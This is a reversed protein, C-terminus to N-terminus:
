TVTGEMTVNKAGRKRLARLRDRLLENARYVLGPEIGLEQAIDAAKVLGHQRRCRLVDRAVPQDGLGAELQDLEREADTQRTEQEARDLTKDEPSAAAYGIEENHFGAHARADKAPKKSTHEHSALSWVVGVMHQAFTRTARSWPRTRLTAEFANQVLEEARPKSRTIGLGAVLAAEMAELAEQPTPVDSIGDM